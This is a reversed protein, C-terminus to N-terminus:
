KFQYSNSKDEAEKKKKDLEGKYYTCDELVKALSDQIFKAKKYEEVTKEMKDLKLGIYLEKKEAPIEEVLMCKQADASLPKRKMYERREEALSDSCLPADEFGEVKKNEAATVDNYQNILLSRCGIATDYVQALFSDPAKQIELFFGDLSTAKSQLSTAMTCNVPTYIMVAAFRKDVAERAQADSKVEAPPAGKEVTLMKEYIESYLTCIDQIKYTQELSKWRTMYTPDEFGERIRFKLFLMLFVISFAIGLLKITVTTLDEQLQASILGPIFTEIIAGVVAVVAVIKLTTSVFEM